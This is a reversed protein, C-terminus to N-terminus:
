FLKEMRGIYTLSIILVAIEKTTIGEQKHRKQEGIWFPKGNQCAISETGCQSPNSRTELTKSHM